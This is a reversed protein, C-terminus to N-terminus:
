GAVYYKPGRISSIAGGEELEGLIDRFFKLIEEKQEELSKEFFEEGLELERILYSRFEPDEKFGLESAADELTNKTVWFVPKIIYEESVKVGPSVEKDGAQFRHFFYNGQEYDIGDWEVEYSDLVENKLSNLVAWISERFVGYKKLVGAYDRSFKM